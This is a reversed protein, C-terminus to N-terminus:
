VHNGRKKLENKIKWLYERYGRFDKKDYPELFKAYKDVLKQLEDVPLTELSFILHKM